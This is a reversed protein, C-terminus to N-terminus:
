ARQVAATPARVTATTRFVIFTFLGMALFVITAGVVIMPEFQAGLQYKLGIGLPFVVAGVIHLYAQAKATLGEAASPVLRYFLGAAFMLVFGVLNLHAHAATLTFDQRIGMVMGLTLGLMLLATSVRLLLSSIAM